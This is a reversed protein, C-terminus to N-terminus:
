IAVSTHSRPAKKVETAVKRILRTVKALLGLTTETIAMM